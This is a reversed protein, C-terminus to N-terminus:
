NLKSFDNIRSMIGITFYKPNVDATFIIIISGQWQTLPLYVEGGRIKHAEGAM